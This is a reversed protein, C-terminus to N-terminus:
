IILAGPFFGLMDDDIEPEPAENPNELMVFALVMMSAIGLTLAATKINNKM